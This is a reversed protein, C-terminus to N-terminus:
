QEATRGGSETPPPTRQLTETMNVFLRRKQEDEIGLEDAAQEPTIRREGPEPHRVYALEREDLIGARVLMEGLPVHLAAALLGLVRTDTINDGRLLRGVTSPSIGSDAAFSSKGGSRPRSLDYGRRALQDHLWTAFTQTATEDGNSNKM